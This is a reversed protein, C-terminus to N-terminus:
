ICEYVNRNCQLMEFERHKGEFIDFDGPSEEFCAYNVDAIGFRGGRNVFLTSGAEFM